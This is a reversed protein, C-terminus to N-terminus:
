IDNIWPIFTSHINVYMNYILNCAHIPNYEGIYINMPDGDYM